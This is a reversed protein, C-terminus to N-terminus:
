VKAMRMRSVKKRPRLYIKTRMKTLRKLSLMKKQLNLIMMRTMRKRETTVKTQRPKLSKTMRM